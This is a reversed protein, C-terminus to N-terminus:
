ENDDIQTKLEEVELKLEELKKNMEKRLDNLQLRVKRKFFESEVSGGWPRAQSVNAQTKIKKSQPTTTVTLSFKKTSKSVELQNQHVKEKIIKSDNAQIKQNAKKITDEVGPKIIEDSMIKGLEKSAITLPSRLKKNKFEPDCGNQIFIKALEIDNEKAAYFLPSNRHIDFILPDVGNLILFKVAQSNKRETAFHLYTKEENDQRHIDAGNEMLINLIENSCTREIAYEFPLKGNPLLKNLSVKKKLLIRLLKPDGYNLALILPCKFSFQNQPTSGKSLKASADKPNNCSLIDAGKDVLFEIIQAYEDQKIENTYSEVPPILIPAMKTGSMEIKGGYGVLTTLGEFWGAIAANNM